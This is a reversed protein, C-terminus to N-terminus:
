FAAGNRKGNRHNGDIVSLLEIVHSKMQASQATMEEAASASEEASAANEQTIGDLKEIINRVRRIAESVNASVVEVDKIKDSTSKGLDGMTYFEAMTKNVLESGEQVSRQTEGLLAETEKGGGGFAPRPKESRRRRRCVRRRKGRGEGSRRRREPCTPQDSLRNRRDEQNDAGNKRQFKNNTGHV